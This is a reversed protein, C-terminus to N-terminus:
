GLDGAAAYVAAADAEIRGREADNDGARATAIDLIEELVARARGPQGAAALAVAWRRAALLTSAHKPGLASLFIAHARAQATVAEDLRGADALALGLNTLTMAVRSDDVGLVRELLRVGRQHAEVAEHARGQLHLAYGLKDLAQATDPHGAGCARTFAEIATRQHAVAQELHGRDQEVMGLGATAHAWDRDDRRGQRELMSRGRHLVAGARDLRGAGWLTYGLDVLVAAVLEDRGSRQLTALAREHAAVAGDADDACNLVHGLRNHAHALVVDDPEPVRNLIEVARQHLELAEGLRGAADLVEGLQCVLAGDLVPDADRGQVDVLRLAAELVQEAAPYLARGAYRRALGALAEVLGDPVAGITESHGALVVLHTAAGAAAAGDSGPRSVCLAAAEELRTRRLPAPLRARVVDQVLRHVRLVNGKRDVLSLRLLEAIADQLDLEDAALPALTELSIADPSLFAVTELVAAAPPSRDRLRDFALGWTTAVTRGGAADRLLLSARRGRFLHVYDPVSMGTQEIYACAQELALPLDGLLDALADAGAADRDGSREMVYTVSEQRALPPVAIPRALRRWAPNRSTIVVDGHQATPLFPEIWGPEDVNDFVLIWGPTRDLEIWLAARTDEERKHHTIGLAAALDALSAATGAPDESAIWWAVRGERHRRYALELALETKGAGALGSLAVARPRRTDDDLVQGVTGLLARRGVFSRNRPPLNMPLVPGAASVSVPAEQALVAAHVRRLPPAPDVGLQEALSRRCREFATLADAQRGATYLATVLRVTLSERLPDQAALEELLEVDEGGRGQRAHADALTEAASIRLEELRASEGCLFTLDGIPGFARPGCWRGLSTGLAAAADVDEGRALARKGSVVEEVFADADVDVVRRDLVYGGRHRPLADEGLLRRLRSVYAHVSAVTSAIAREGWVDDVIQEAPVATDGGALVRALVARQRPGGLSVVRGDVAAEFVGLVRVSVRSRDEPARSDTSM